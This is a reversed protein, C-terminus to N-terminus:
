MNIQPVSNMIDNLNVKSQFLQTQYNELEKNLKVSVKQYARLAVRLENVKNLSICNTLVANVSEDVRKQYEVFEGVTLPEKEIKLIRSLGGFCKLEDQCLFTMLQMNRLM